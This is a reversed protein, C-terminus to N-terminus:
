GRGKGRMVTRPDPLGPVGPVDRTNAPVGPSQVALRKGMERQPEPVGSRPRGGKSEMANQDTLRELVSKKASASMGKKSAKKPVKASYGKAVSKRM